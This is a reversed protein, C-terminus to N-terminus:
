LLVGVIERLLRNDVQEDRLRITGIVDAEAALRHDPDPEVLLSREAASKDPNAAQRDAGPGPV